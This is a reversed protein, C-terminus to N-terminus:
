RAEDVTSGRGINVFVGDPGLAELVEANVAKTPARRPRAGGLDAHRGGRGARAPQRSLSYGVGDVPRRNHYAIPLGFAELRRAIALGIRGM